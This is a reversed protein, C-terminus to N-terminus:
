NRNTFDLFNCFYNVSRLLLQPVNESLLTFETENWSRLNYGFYVHALTSIM